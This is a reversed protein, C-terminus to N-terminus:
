HSSYHETRHGCGNKKSWYQKIKLSRLIIGVLIVVITLYTQFRLIASWRTYTIITQHTFARFLYFLLSHGMLFYWPYIWKQLTPEIKGAKYALGISVIILFVTGIQISELM